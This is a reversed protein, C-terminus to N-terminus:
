NVMEYVSTGTRRRRRREREDNTDELFLHLSSSGKGNEGSAAAAAAASQSARGDRMSERSFSAIEGPIEDATTFYLFPEFKWM